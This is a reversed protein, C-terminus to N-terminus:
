QGEKIYAVLASNIAQHDQRNTFDNYGKGNVDTIEGIELSSISVPDTDFSFKVPIYFGGLKLLANSSTPLIHAGVVEFESAFIFDNTPIPAPNATAKNNYVLLAFVIAITAAFWVCVAGVTFRFAPNSIIPTQEM